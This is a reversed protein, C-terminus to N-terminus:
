PVSDKNWADQFSNGIDREDYQDEWYLKHPLSAENNGPM